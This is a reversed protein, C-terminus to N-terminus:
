TFIDILGPISGILGLIGGLSQEWGGGGSAMVESTGTGGLPKSVLNAYEALKQYPLAQGWNYRAIEENIRAQDMARQQSGVASLVTGPQVQAAQVTPIQGITNSLTNLGQQYAQNYMQATIDQASRAAQGTAVGEAIGQRSGGYGGVGVSQQRIQPLTSQELQQFVPNIAARAAGAVVPNNAVDYAKLGYQVGPLLDTVNFNAMDGATKQLYNGAATEPGTFGAVTSGPYFGPGASGYLRQAESLMQDIYPQQFGAPASSSVTKTTGSSKGM